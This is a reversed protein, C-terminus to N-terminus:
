YYVIKRLDNVSDTVQLNHYIIPAVAEKALRKSYLRYKSHLLRQTINRVALIARYPM